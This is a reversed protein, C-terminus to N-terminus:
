LINFDYVDYVTFIWFLIWDLYDPDYGYGTFIDNFIYIYLTTNYHRIFGFAFNVFVIGRWPKGVWRALVRHRVVDTDSEYVLQRMPDRRTLEGPLTFDPFFIVFSPFNQVQKVKM